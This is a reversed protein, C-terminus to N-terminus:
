FPEMMEVPWGHIKAMAFALRREAIDKAKNASNTLAQLNRAHYGEWSRVRDVTYGTAHRGRKNLYDYKGAFARFEEITLNFEHGRRKASKKLNLFAIRDPNSAAYAGCRCTNCLRRHRPARRRCYKTLCKTTMWSTKLAWQVVAAM